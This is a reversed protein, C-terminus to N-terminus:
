GALRTAEADQEVEPVATVRKLRQHFSALYLALFLACYHEQIESLRMGKSELAKVGFRELRDPIRVLTALVAAPM